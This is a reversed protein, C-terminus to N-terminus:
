VIANAILPAAAITASPAVASIGRGARRRWGATAQSGQRTM